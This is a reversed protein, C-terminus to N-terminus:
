VIIKTNNPIIMETNPEGNLTGKWGTITYTGNSNDTYNFDVLWVAPDFPEVIVDIDVTHKVGNETYIITATSNKSNIVGICGEAIKSEGNQYIATIVMGTTDFPEGDIYILKDPMTTVEISPMCYSVLNGGKMQVVYDYGDIQDTLIIHNRKMNIIDIDGNEDPAIGSATKIVGSVTKTVDATRAISNPIFMEDLQKLKQDYKYAATFTPYKDMSETAQIRFRFVKLGTKRDMKPAEFIIRYPSNKMHYIALEDSQYFNYITLWLEGNIRWEFVHGEHLIVKKNSLYGYQGLSGNWGTASPDAVRGEFYCSSNPITWLEYHTRNKIYDPATPDNQQYDAQIQEVNGSEDPEVGNVTKVKGIQSTSVRRIDGDQEILVHSTDTVEEIIEIESYKKFTYDEM